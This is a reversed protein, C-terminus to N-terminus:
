LPPHVFGAAAFVTLVLVLAAAFAAGGHMTASVARQRAPLQPERIWTLTAAVAAVLVAVLTAIIILLAVGEEHTM